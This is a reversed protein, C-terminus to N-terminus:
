GSVSGRGAPRGLQYPEFPRGYATPETSGSSSEVRPGEYRIQKAAQLAARFMRPALDQVLFVTDAHKPLASGERGGCTKGMPSM